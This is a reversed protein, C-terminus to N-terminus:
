IEMESPAASVTVGSTSKFTKRGKELIEIDIGEPSSGKKVGKRLDGCFFPKVASASNPSTEAGNVFARIMNAFRMDQEIQQKEKVLEKIRRVLSFKFGCMLLNITLSLYVVSLANSSTDDAAATSSNSLSSNSLSLNSAMPIVGMASWVGSRYNQSPPMLDVGANNLVILINVVVMPVDEGFLVALGVASSRM